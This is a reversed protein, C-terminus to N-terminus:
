WAYVNEAADPSNNSGYLWHDVDTGFSWKMSATTSWTTQASLAVGFASVSGKYKQGKSTKKTYTRKIDGQYYVAWGKGRAADMQGASDHSRVDKGTKGGGVWAEPVIRYDSRCVHGDGWDDTFDLREKRYRFQSLQINAHGATYAATVTSSKNGMHNTGATVKFPGGNASYAGDLDTNATQGYTLLGTSDYEVHGEGIPDFTSGRAVVTVWPAYMPRCESGSGGVGAVAGIDGSVAAAIDTTTQAGVDAGQVATMELTVADPTSLVAGVADSGPDTAGTDVVASYVLDAASYAQGGLNGYVTMVNAVNTPGVANEIENYYAQVIYNVYEGNEEAQALVEDIAPLSLSFRGRADTTGMAAPQQRYPGDPAHLGPLVTLTVVAGRVSQGALTVTGRLAPASPVAETAANAAGPLTALAVTLAAVSGLAKLRTRM